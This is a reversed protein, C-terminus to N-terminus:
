SDENAQRQCDNFLIKLKTTFNWHPRVTQTLRWDFQKGNMVSGPSRRASCLVLRLTWDPEVVNIREVTIERQSELRNRMWELEATLAEVKASAADSATTFKQYRQKNLFEKLM